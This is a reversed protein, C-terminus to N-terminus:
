KLTVILCKYYFEEKGISIAYQYKRSFLQDCVDELAKDLYFKEDTTYVHNAGELIITLASLNKGDKLDKQFEESLYCYTTYYIKRYDSLIIAFEEMIQFKEDFSKSEKYENIEKRKISWLGDIHDEFSIKVDNMGFDPVKNWMNKAKNSRCELNEDM